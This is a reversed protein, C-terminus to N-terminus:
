SLNFTCMHSTKFIREVDGMVFQFAENLSSFSFVSPCGRLDRFAFRLHVSLQPATRPQYVYLLVSPDARPIAAQCSIGRLHTITLRSERSVATESITFSVATCSDHLQPLPKGPLLRGKSCLEQLKIKTLWIVSSHQAAPTWGLSLLYSHFTHASCGCFIKFYHSIADCNRIDQQKLPSM